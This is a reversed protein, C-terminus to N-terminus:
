ERDPVWGAVREATRAVKGTFGGGDARVLGASIRMILETVAHSRVGLRTIRRMLGPRGLGKTALRGLKYYRDYRADLEAEYRRLALGDGQQLADCLVTAALRGNSLAPEVGDGNFPNVSGAADGAVVWNPGSRPQVSAGMPLRGGAPEGLLDAATIEWRPPIQRVWQDFLENPSIAENGHHHSLLGVGVNATGDGLPFVWGYGPLQAGSSDSLDFASEIWPDDHHECRFYGRTAIGQAFTRSRATGLARGFNSLPGDAIVVFRARVEIPGAPGGAADSGTARCGRLHGHEVIPEDVRTGTWVEAGAHAAHDLLLADLRRRRIALGHDPQGADDPWELQVSRGHATMRLGLHRHEGALTERLGMDYLQGVARPTLADGCPRDRPFQEREIVLVRHGARATWYAASAGAPGGGVVLVDTTATLTV